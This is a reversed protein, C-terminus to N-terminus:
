GGQNRTPDVVLSARKDPRISQHIFCNYLLLIEVVVRGNQPAQSAISVATADSVFLSCISCLNPGRGFMGDQIPSRGVSNYEWFNGKEHAIMASLYDMAYRGLRGPTSATKTAMNLSATDAMVGDVGKIVRM